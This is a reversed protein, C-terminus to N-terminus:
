KNKIYFNLCMERKTSTTFGQQFGSTLLKQEEYPEVSKSISLVVISGRYKHTMVRDLDYRQRACLDVQPRLLLDEDGWSSGGKKIARRKTFIWMISGWVGLHPFFRKPMDESPRSHHDVRVFGQDVCVKRGKLKVGVFPSLCAQGQDVCSRRGQGQSWGISALLSPRSWCM